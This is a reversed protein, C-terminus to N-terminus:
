LIEKLATYYNGLALESTTEHNTHYNTTPLQLTAGNFEGQTHQIIRGLETKGLKIQKANLQSNQEEIIEDKMEYRIGKRECTSRLENVLDPNFKGLEDRNRLIVAGQEIARSDTYPTTDLTIIEKSTIKKSRIYDVIHKWSRGIEEEATFLITGDFGDQTLQYAVAISSVNDLQCDINGNKRNLRSQYSIPTNTPLNKLGEIEFFLDKKDFDQSFGAVIGQELPKGNIDYAYVSGGIFRQGSKEFITKSSTDKFGYFKKANSSAFEFKGDNNVVIGHRDIHATIIKPNKTNKTVALIKGQNEVKYGNKDFDKALHNIFPAEFRVVSPVAIYEDIKSLIEKLGM